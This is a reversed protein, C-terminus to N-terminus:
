QFAICDLADGVDCLERWAKERALTRAGHAAADRQAPNARASLTGAGRTLSM